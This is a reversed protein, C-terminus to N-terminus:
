LCLLSCKDHPLSVPLISSISHQIYYCLASYLLLTSFIPASKETHSSFFTAHLL